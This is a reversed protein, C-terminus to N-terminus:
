DPGAGPAAAVVAPPPSAYRALQEPGVRVQPVTPVEREGPAALAADGPAVGLRDAPRAAQDVDLVLVEPPM